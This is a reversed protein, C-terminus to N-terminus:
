FPAPLGWEPYTLWAVATMVLALAVAVGIVIALVSGGAGVHIRETESLPSSPAPDTAAEAITARTQETTTNDDEHPNSGVSLPGSWDGDVATRAREIRRLKRAHDAGFVSHMLGAVEAMGVPKAGRAIYTRLDQSMEHATAYRDAPDRVLARALVEKLPGPVGAPLKPIAGHLIRMVTEAVREGVFLRRNALMEWLCVGLAWLDARWVCGGLRVRLGRFPCAVRSVPVCGELRARLLRSPCAVISVSVCGALRVRLWRSPCAVLSVSVCGALRVRRSPCAVLSVSVVRVRLWRSPCAVWSVPVGELRSVCGELRVRLGRSPCAVRSVSVCGELRVRLGRSPCAVRSVSM